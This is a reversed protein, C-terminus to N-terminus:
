VSCSSDPLVFSYALATRGDDSVILYFVENGEKVFKAATGGCSFDLDDPHAGIALITKKM